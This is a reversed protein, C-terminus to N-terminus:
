AKKFELNYEFQKFGLFAIWVAVMGIISYGAGSLNFLGFIIIAVSGLVWLADLASIVNVLHRNKLQKSSVYGVFVSFLILGMGIVPFIYPNEINFIASLKQFFALMAIGCIMSFLSNIRLYKKLEKM